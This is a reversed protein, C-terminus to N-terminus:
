RTLPRHLGDMETVMPMVEDRVYTVLDDVAEPRVRMTTTRAYM